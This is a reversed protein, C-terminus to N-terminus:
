KDCPEPNCETNLSLTWAQPGTNPYAAEPLQLSLDEKGQAEDTPTEDVPTPTEEEVEEVVPQVIKLPIKERQMKNITLPAEQCPFLSLPGALPPPLGVEPDKSKKKLPVYKTSSRPSPM